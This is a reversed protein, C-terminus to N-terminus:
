NHDVWLEVVPRPASAIPYNSKGRLSFDLVVVIVAAAM